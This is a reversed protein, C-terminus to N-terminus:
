VQYETTEACSEVDHKSAVRRQKSGANDAQFNQSSTDNVQRKRGLSM